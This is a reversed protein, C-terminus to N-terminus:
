LRRVEALAARPDPFHELSDGSVVVEFFRSRFPTRQADGLVAGVGRPSLDLNVYRYGRNVLSKRLAGIGGGLDLVHGAGPPVKSLLYRKDGSM